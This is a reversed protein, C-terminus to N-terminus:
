LEQGRAAAVPAAEERSCCYLCTTARTSGDTTCIEVLSPEPDAKRPRQRLRHCAPESGLGPVTKGPLRGAHDVQAHPDAPVPLPARGQQMGALDGGPRHQPPPQLQLALTLM